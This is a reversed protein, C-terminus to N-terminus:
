PQTLYVPQTFAGNQAVDWVEFRFWKLEKKPFYSIFRNIDRRYAAVTNFSQRKEIKLFDTYEDIYQSM